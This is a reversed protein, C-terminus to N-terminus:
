FINDQGFHFIKGRIGKVVGFLWVIHVAKWRRPDLLAIDDSCWKLGANGISTTKLVKERRDLGTEAAEM